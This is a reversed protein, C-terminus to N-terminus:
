RGSLASAQGGISMIAKGLEIVQEIEGEPPLIDGVNVLVRGNFAKAIRRGFAVIEGTPLGQTFLTAPMGCYCRLRDGAAEALEEPM